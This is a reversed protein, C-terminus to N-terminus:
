NENPSEACGMLWVALVMFENVLKGNSLSRKFLLARPIGLRHAETSFGAGYIFASGATLAKEQGQPAWVPEM